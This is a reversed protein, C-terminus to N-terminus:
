DEADQDREVEQDQEHLVPGHSEVDPEVVALDRGGRHVNGVVEHLDVEVLDLRLRRCGRCRRRRSSSSAAARRPAARSQRGLPAGPLEQDPPGLLRRRMKVRMRM